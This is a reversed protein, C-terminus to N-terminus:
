SLLVHVCEGHGIVESEVRVHGVSLLFPWSFCMCMFCLLPLGLLSVVEILEQQWTAVLLTKAPTTNGISLYPRLVALMGALLLGTCSFFFISCLQYMCTIVTCVVTLTSLAYPYILYLPSTIAVLFPQARRSVWCSFLRLCLSPENGALSWLAVTRDM